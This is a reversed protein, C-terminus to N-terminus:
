EQFRHTSTRGDIGHSQRGHRVLFALFAALEFVATAGLGIALSAAITGGSAYAVGTATWLVLVAGVVLGMAAFASGVALGFAAAGIM